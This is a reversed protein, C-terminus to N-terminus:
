KLLWMPVYTICTMILGAGLVGAMIAPAAHRLKLNMFSAILAGTWAGTGPLPVAVFLFVFLIRGWHTKSEAKKANDEAKKEFRLVLKETFKWRKMLTFIKKILLLIFPIPLINGIYCILFAEIYPVNSLAAAILGGRLELIPMLSIFFIAIEPSIGIGAFWSNLTNAITETM